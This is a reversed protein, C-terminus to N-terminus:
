IGDLDEDNDTDQDLVEDLKLGQEQMIRSFAEWGGDPKELLSLKPEENSLSHRQLVQKLYLYEQLFPQSEDNKAPLSFAKLINYCLQEMEEPLYRDLLVGDQDVLEKLFQWHPQSLQVQCDIASM